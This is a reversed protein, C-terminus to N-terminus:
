RLVSEVLDVMNRKGGRPTPWWPLARSTVSVLGNAM